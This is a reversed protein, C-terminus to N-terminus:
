KSPPPTFGFVLSLNARKSSYARALLTGLLEVSLINLLSTLTFYEYIMNLYTTLKFSM